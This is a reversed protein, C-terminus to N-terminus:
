GSGVDLEAGTLNLTGVNVSAASVIPFTTLPGTINAIDTGGPVGNSWNSPNAWNSDASGNWNSSSAWASSTLACVLILAFLRM